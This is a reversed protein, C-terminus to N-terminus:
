MAYVPRWELPSRNGVYIESVLDRLPAIAPANAHSSSDLHRVLKRVRNMQRLSQCHYALTMGRIALGVGEDVEGADCLAQAKSIMLLANWRPMTPCELLAREADNLYRLAEGPEGFDRLAKGYIELVEFPIFDRKPAGEGEGSHGLLDVAEAIHRRFSEQDGADAYTYALMELVYGRTAREATGSGELATRMFALATDKDGKRRYADGLETMHATVLNKDRLEESLTLAQRYEAIATDNDLRDVALAGLLEHARSLIHKGERAQTSLPSRRQMTDLLPLVSQVARRAEDPRSAIWSTFGMEIIHNAVELDLGTFAASVNVPLAPDGDKPGHLLETESIKLAKALPAIAWDPTASEGKEWRNLTKASVYENGSAGLRASLIELSVHRQKRWYLLQTNANAGNREREM